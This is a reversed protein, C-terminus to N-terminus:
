QRGGANERTKCLNVLDEVDFHPSCVRAGKYMFAERTRHEASTMCLKFLTFVIESDTMAPSLVWRRTYQMQPGAGYVDEELYSGQVYAEGRESVEAKITYEAGGLDFRIRTIIASARVAVEYSPGHDRKGRLKDIEDAADFPLSDVQFSGAVVPDRYGWEHPQRLRYVIDDMSGTGGDFQKVKEITDDLGDFAENREGDTTSRLLKRAAEYVRRLLGYESVKDQMNPGMTM